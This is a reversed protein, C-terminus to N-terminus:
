LPFLNFDSKGFKPSSVVNVKSKSKKKFKSGSSRFSALLTQFDKSEAPEVIKHTLFKHPRDDQQM